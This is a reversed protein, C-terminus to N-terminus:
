NKDKPVPTPTPAPAPLGPPSLPVLHVQPPFGMAPRGMGFGFTNGEAAVIRSIAQSASRRVAAEDDKLVKLLETMAERGAYGMQGLAYAAAARKEKNADKLADKLPAIADRGLTSLALASNQRVEPDVDKLAEILAPVLEKFQQAVSRPFDPMGPYAPLPPPGPPPEQPGALAPLVVILATFAAVFPRM